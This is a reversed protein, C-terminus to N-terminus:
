PSDEFISPVPPALELGNVIFAHTVYRGILLLVAAAQEPGINEVVDGILARVGHGGSEVMALALRQVAKEDEGLGSQAEPVLQNVSRVWKEGLGLKISLREHQHREYANDLAGSISLAVLEVLNEPLDGKASDTFAMFDQLAAPQHGMCKFFEGLYGLRAVRPELAAALDPALDEMELRPINRTM